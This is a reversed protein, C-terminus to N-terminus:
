RGLIFYLYSTTGVSPPVLTIINYTEGANQVTSESSTPRLERANIDRVGVPVFFVQWLRIDPHAEKTITTVGSLVGKEIVSYVGYNFSFGNIELGYDPM